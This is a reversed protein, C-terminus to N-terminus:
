KKKATSAAKMACDKYEKSNLDAHQKQCAQNVSMTKAPAKSATEAAFMPASIFAAGSLISVTLISSVLKSIKM